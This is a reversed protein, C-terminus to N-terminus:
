SLSFSVVDVDIVHFCCSYKKACDARAMLQLNELSIKKWSFFDFRLGNNPLM